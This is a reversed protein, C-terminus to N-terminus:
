KLIAAESTSSVGGIKKLETEYSKAPGAVVIVSTQPQLHAKAAGQVDAPTIANVREIYTVLYDRGLGYLEIDLLMEGPNSKLQETFRATIAAKAAELQEVTPMSEQMRTMTALVENLASVMESPQAVVRMLYPSAIIQPIFEVTVKAKSQAALRAKLIEHMALAAFYDQSRRSAGIQAIIAQAETGEPRDLVVIRRSTANDPPRFAPSVRDGKKWAGLKARSYKTVQEATIDGSAMLVANNALFFKKHFYVVDAKAIQQLSESTSKIPRGFPHSGFVLERAKRNLAISDSKDNTLAALQEAKLADLEKADFTPTILMAGLLDFMIEASDASGSLEVDIADWAAAIQLSLGLGEITSKLSGANYSGGGRLLMASTVEALGGKGALDFLAGSNVRVRLTVSGAGAKEITLLQLGNLLTDRKVVPYLVGANQKVSAVAFPAIGVHWLLVLAMFFYRRQRFSV